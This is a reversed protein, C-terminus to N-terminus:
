VFGLAVAGDDTLLVGPEEDVSVDGEGDEDGGDEGGEDAEGEIWLEEEARDVDLAAGGNALEEIDCVASGAGAEDPGLIVEVDLPLPDLATAIPAPTPTPTPTPTSSKPAPANKRNRRRTLALFFVPVYV